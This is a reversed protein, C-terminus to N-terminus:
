SESLCHGVKQRSYRYATMKVPVPAQEIPPKKSRSGISKIRFVAEEHKELSNNSFDITNTGSSPKLTKKAETATQTGVEATM